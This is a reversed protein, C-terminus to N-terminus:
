ACMPQGPFIFIAIAFLSLYFTLQVFRNKSNIYMALILPFGMIYFNALDNGHLGLVVGIQGRIMSFNMKSPVMFIYVFIIALSLVLLAM